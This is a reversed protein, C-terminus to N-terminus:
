SGEGRRALQALQMIRLGLDMADEPDLYVHKGPFVDAGLTVRVEGNYRIVKVATGDTGIFDALDALPAGGETTMDETVRM